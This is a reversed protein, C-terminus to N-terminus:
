ATAPEALFERIATGTEEPNELQYFHGADVLRLRASPVHELAREYFEHPQFGDHRSQLLLIPFNWAPILRTRRDIWEKRFTSSNFYRPAADAIGERNWEQATRVLDERPVPRVALAGYCLLVFRGPERMIVNRRYDAFLAEQPALEPNFYWLHQEGRVYRLVREPHNGGLYDLIVTGRDHGIMNFRDVGILDLLALLQESVGEHRYDGARKESQGYGKLDIALVRHGRRALDDIQHRWMYWSDPIGHLMVVPEGDSPGAEVYHWRVTESEGPADAFRHTVSTSGITETDGDHNARPPTLDDLDGAVEASTLRAVSEELAKRARETLPEHVFTSPDTNSTM